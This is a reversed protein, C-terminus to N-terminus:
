NLKRAVVVTTKITEVNGNNDNLAELLVIYIGMRLTNGDDDLGDFVVSGNSGSPQNSYITRVLRGKSDFIKLKIQSVSQSLNYNIITFDEFGDNDPSFPNPSISINSQLNNNEAFISNILGPTGGIPNVCTSWNLPDNSNLNPNIRELSKNKTNVFNRNHWKDSYLVSDIVNGKVDKLLILEGANVLGLSSVGVINKYSYNNLDYKNLPISDAILLFYAKPPLLFSTSYLKYTNGNEDSVSWGGVNVSDNGSNYFEIYESNDIDPDFMIENIVVDNRQYSPLNFISNVEGPTSGKLSLSLTWNTSDNTSGNLSIREIAVDSKSGWSSRYFLSDIIGNRFDYLVVGDSTNGLTGFNANF